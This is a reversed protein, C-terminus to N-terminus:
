PPKPILILCNMANLQQSIQQKECTVATAPWFNCPLICNVATSHLVKTLPSCLLANQCLGCHANPHLFAKGYIGMYEFQVAAVTASNQLNRGYIWHCRSSGQQLVYQSQTPASIYLAGLIRNCIISGRLVANDGMSNLTNPWLIVAVSM